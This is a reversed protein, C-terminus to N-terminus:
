ELLQRAAAQPDLAVARRATERAQDRQGARHHAFALENLHEPRDPELLTLMRYERVAGLPDPLEDLVRAYRLHTDLDYPDIYVSQQYWAAATPLQNRQTYIRAIQRPVDADHEEHRALELLPGLAADDDDQALYVGSLIRYSLPNEPQLKRLRGAWEIADQQQEHHNAWEALFAVAEAHQPDMEVLARYHTRAEELLGRARQRGPDSAARHAALRAAVQLVRPNGPDLELARRVHVEARDDDGGQLVAAQDAHLRANEPYVRLLWRTRLEDVPPDLPLGWNAAREAAWAGFREDFEETSMGSIAPIVERQVSGDRYMKLMRNIVEYGWTEILYECLWESQAYAVQRDDPQRPRVFGWDIHDVSFLSGRRLREVLLQKWEWSRPRDEQLVALGETLWHPIRNATAALTVTHTFEHRLVSAFNYNGRVDRRPADMAIVRGTCAGVTHIWPKGHIRVGFKRHDPFFEIVTHEALETEYDECLEQYITELYGAAYEGLVADRGADYRVEFHPSRQEAFGRLDELLRETNFTRANFADLDLAQQVRDQAKGEYGWQMYMMALGNVPESNTPDFQIAQEYEAEAEPFQRAASRQNGLVIHLIAPRPNIAYVRRRTQEAASGDGAQQQAACLLALAELHGPSGELAREAAGIADQHRREVLRLAALLTYAEASHPNIDLAADVQREVNAFDWAELAIAGLGLHAEVAHPNHRLASHYDELAEAFNYKELLLDAIAVRAPWYAADMQCAVQLVDRLVYQTRSTLEPSRTLVSHRYFGLGSYHLDPATEPFVQQEALLDSFYRYTGVAEERRGVREYTRGLEYRARLDTGDAALAQRGHDISRDYDGLRRYATAIARHWEATARGHDSSPPHSLLGDRASRYAGQAIQCDAAAVVATAHVAPEPSGIEASYAEWAHRYYGSVFAERADDLHRAPSGGATAGLLLFLVIRTAM